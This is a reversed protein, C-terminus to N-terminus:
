DVPVFVEVRTGAPQKSSDYLDTINYSVPRSNLQNLIEYFEGTLKLGKGTSDSQGAAKARGIGNDEIIIKLYDSVKEIVINLKGGKDNPIIGHKIANEAFTHLVLKPVKEMGTVGRGLEISFNLKDGFRMKELELYTTVFEVEENLPRYIHEADNLMSRLLKTFKNLYDYAAQREELYILSAISNLSNFTFHPDLQAKIGQLQLTLLRQKLSEKQEVQDVAIKKIGVIFLVFLIFVGPYVLYGAYYFRNKNLDMFCSEDGARMFLRYKHDKSYYSCFKWVPDQTKFECETLESFESDFVFLRETSHSYLIFEKIGDGNLDVQYRYMEPQLPIDITRILELSDNLEYVKDGVVYIKEPDSSGSVFLNLHREETIDKYSRFRLLRGDNSFLMIGSEMSSSDIGWNTLSVAYEKVKGNGYPFVETGAAFGPFEVPPFEFKLKNDFVMFWASSDSFPVSRPYNGSGSTSGFIEPQNDDDIDEMKPDLLISGSFQSSILTKHVLDFSYLKRPGLQYYSSIDFYFEGHNDNNQDYLGIPYLVASVEGNKYGIKTIFVRELLLGKPELLEKVNLFLSDQKHTFIYVEQFHDNDYDGFYIKSIEPNLSDAFNWQDIFLDDFTKAVLFYYPSGRHTYVTESIGDSNLDSYTFLGKSTIGETIKLDYESTLPTIFFLTVVAPIIALFWPSYIIRKYITSHKM